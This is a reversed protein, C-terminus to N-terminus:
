RDGLSEVLVNLNQEMMGFWDAGLPDLTAMPLGALEAMRRAAGADFQPESFMVLAGSAQIARQVDAIHAPSPEATSVPALVEAVRLGYRAAPRAFANHHTVFARGQLPALRERYAADVAEIRAFHGSLSARPARIETPLAAHLGEVLRRMLVPDLWLHADIGAAAPATTGPAIPLALEEATALDSLLIVRGALAPQARVQEGWREELGLGVFVVAAARATLALSEPGPEFGHVTRGAPLVASVEVGERVLPQVLSVLSPISVVVRPPGVRAASARVRAVLSGALGGVVLGGLLFVVLWAVLPTRRVAPQEQSSMRLYVGRKKAPM